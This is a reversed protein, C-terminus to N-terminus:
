IIDKRKGQGISPIYAVIIPLFKSNPINEWLNHIAVFDSASYWKWTYYKYYKTHFLSCPSGINNIIPENKDNMKGPVLKNNWKM